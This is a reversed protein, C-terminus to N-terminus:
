TRKLYHIVVQSISMGDHDGREIEAKKNERLWLGIKNVEDNMELWGKTQSAQVRMATEQARAVGMWTQVEKRLRRAESGPLTNALWRGLGQLTWKIEQLM